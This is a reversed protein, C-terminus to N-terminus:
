NLSSKENGEEKSVASLSELKERIQEMFKECAETTRQAYVHVKTYNENIMHERVEELLALFNFAEFIKLTPNMKHIARRLEVVDHEVLYQALVKEYIEFESLVLELFIAMDETNLFIQEPQSFSLVDTTGNERLVEQKQPLGVGSAAVKQGYVALKQYLDSPDIPKSIYDDMGVEKMKKRGVDSVEATLALVPISKAWAVDLSRIASTAQYGDMGPMQIDMLVVDYKKAAVKSVAEEGGSVVELDFDWNSCFGRMLMQNTLVDEVYLVKLGSLLKFTKGFSRGHESITVKESDDAPSFPLYVSFTSGAGPRSELEIKGKFLEVLNQIISLGLGTGGYKRSTDQAAQHFPEFIIKHKSPPIGIGTDRVEFLLTIEDAEDSSPEALNVSLTISGEPTFKVANSLLNNLIQSVRAPDGNIIEPVDPAIELELAIGKDQALIQFTNILSRALMAVEFNVKEVTIHGAQIKSYDLIDNILTLLTDASFKLTKIKEAQDARPSEMLLLNAMGIVANLPTRIEHSMVSFFRDKAIMAEEVEHRANLLDAEYRVREDVNRIIEVYSSPTGDSSFIAKINSELWVYHGAKHRLRYITRMQRGDLQQIRYQELAKEMDEPHVNEMLDWEMVEHPTYGTMEMCAPSVYIRRGDVSHLSIIDASHNAVLDYREKARRVEEEKRKLVTLDTIVIIFSVEGINPTYSIAFEGPFQSGDKRKFVLEAHLPEDANQKASAIYHSVTAKSIPDMLQLVSQDKLETKEYGFLKCAHNNIAITFVHKDLTIIAESAQNFIAELQQQKHELEDNAMRLDELSTRLEEQHLRLQENIEAQHDAPEYKEESLAKLKLFVIHFLSFLQGNLHADELLSTGSALFFHVTKDRANKGRAWFYSELRSRELWEAGGPFHEIEIQETGIRDPIFDALQVLAMVQDNAMGWSIPKALEPFGACWIVGAPIEYLHQLGQILRIRLQGVEEAKQLSEFFSLIDIRM